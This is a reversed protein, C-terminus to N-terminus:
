WEIETDPSLLLAPDRARGRYYVEFHLHPGTVFGTDGVRGVVQGKDVMEGDRVLVASLHAYRTVFDGHYIDLGIGYQRSRFPRARGAAAAHVAAGFAARIDIAEHPQARHLVPDLRSFSYGSTIAGGDIPSRDPVFRLASDAAAAVRKERAVLAAYRGQFSARAKANASGPQAMGMRSELAGVRAELAALRMSDAAIERSAVPRAAVMAVLGAGGVVGLALGVRRAARLRCAARVRVVGMRVGYPLTM